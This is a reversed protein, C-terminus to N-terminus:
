QDKESGDDGGENFIINYIYDFCPNIRNKQDTSNSITNYDRVSKYDGIRIPVVKGFKKFHNEIANWAELDAKTGISSSKRNCVFLIEGKIQPYKKKLTTFVIAFTNTSRITNLDFFYPCIIYDAGALLETMGGQTLSGPTDIVTTYNAQKLKSMLNHANEKSKLDFGQIAYRIFSEPPKDPYRYQLEKFDDKRHEVLTQQLDADVVLIRKGQEVLYNCFLGCLTTKGVGGKQNSFLIIKNVGVGELQINDNTEAM